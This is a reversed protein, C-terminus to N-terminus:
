AARFLRRAASKLRDWRTPRGTNQIIAAVIAAQRDREPKGKANEIALRVLENVLRVGDAKIYDRQELENLIEVARKDRIGTKWELMSDLVIFATSRRGM